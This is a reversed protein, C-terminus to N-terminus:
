AKRIEIHAKARLGKVWLDYQERQKMQAVADPLEARIEDLQYERESKRDTLKFINFGVSNELVPSVEGVELTDLGARISPQLTSLPVFGIDGDETQQGQYKSYRRVLTGFNTGKLAESQVRDALKKARAADADSVPVRILIHRAHLELVPKHDADLSDQGARTKMTDREIAQIIHWGYATHVPQSMEGDKLAFAAREFTPDMSGVTFFGLDGGQRATGQDDSVDAAVKAFKEGGTIRKRAAVAQARAKAETVSDATAPIQIVELRVEAPMHPFKDHNAKFYAEAEAPTVTRKPLQKQLLRQTLIQRQLDSRYKERLKEETLNEKALQQRYGEEGGLREKADHVAQEVEKTVELDSVTLGQKKAEAVILKEDILQNLIQRRLTDVTASDPDIKSQMVFLALQEEVDSQLIVEDNVVAAIGDLRQQASATSVAMALALGIGAWTM